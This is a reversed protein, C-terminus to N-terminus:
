SKVIHCDRVQIEVKTILKPYFCRSFHLSTTLFITTQINTELNTEFLRSPVYIAIGNNKKVIM